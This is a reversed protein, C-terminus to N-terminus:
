EEKFSRAFSDLLPQLLYELFTREGTKIIVEAPMGPLLQLGHLQAMGEPTVEIRALYYARKDAQDILRDASVTLVKGEVVPTTRAKFASFRIDATLGPHVKDIDTPQVQAEVVLPEGRPVIDLIRTGPSIVGGVTHVGLGVVIGENSARIETRELTDRLARMREQADFIKTQVDRLEAVVEALFKKKVQMIQLRTEGIQMKARAMDALHEARDGELAAISRELDLVRLKDVHGEKLLKRFDQLEGNLSDIRQKESQQLADLGSIQAQLQEIRQELVAIEGQMSDRRAKFVRDQGNLTERVRPDDQLSVLENPFVIRELNDREAILRVELARLALYGSRVIELQARPQTDELRVLVQGETVTDGDRVRIEKIIGGELHQITKRYSEVTVMGPAVAASGLKAVAAWGGFGVFALLLVAFGLL